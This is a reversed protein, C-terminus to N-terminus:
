LEIAFIAPYLATKSAEFLKPLNMVPCTVAAPFIGGHLTSTIPAPTAPSLAIAVTLLDESPIM